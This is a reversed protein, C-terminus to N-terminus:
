ADLVEHAIQPLVEAVDARIIIEARVDIYTRSNNVLIVPADKELALIPLKASPMVELSTGAILMLDCNRCEEEALLWTKVPLQEEYLIVDPKLVGGCVPCHPVTSNEIYEQIIGDSPVQRFCNVCTLTTLTGHVELVDKAGARTHLGDINQTIITSIYGRAQMQALATHAPNPQASVLQVALPHLWKYFQDPNYRFATLSAVEMPVYRTWLGIGPSRFDPIGSPTSIGAGTLVVAHRSKKILEAARHIYETKETFADSM